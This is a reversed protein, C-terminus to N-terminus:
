KDDDSSVPEEKAVTSRGKIPSTAKQTSYALDAIIFVTNKYICERRLAPQPRIDINNWQMFYMCDSYEQVSVEKSEYTNQNIM